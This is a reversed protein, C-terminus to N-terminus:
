ALLVKLVDPAAFRRPQSHTEIVELVGIDVLQGILTNARGYSVGLVKEAKRAVGKKSSPSTVLCEGPEYDVFQVDCGISKLISKLGFAQLFSGYNYIRQMSLIGVRPKTM